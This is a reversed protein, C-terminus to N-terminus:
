ILGKISTINLFRKNLNSCESEMVGVVVDCGNSKLKDIGSGM